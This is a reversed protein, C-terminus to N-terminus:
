SVVENRAPAPTEDIELPLRSLHEVRGRDMRLARVLALSFITVFLLLSIVPFIEIGTISRLLEKYM